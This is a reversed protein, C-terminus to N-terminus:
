GGITSLTLLTIAVYEHAIGKLNLVIRMREGASNQYRTHLRLQM